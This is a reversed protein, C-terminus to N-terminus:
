RGHGAINAWVIARSWPFLGTIEFNELGERFFDHFTDANLPLVPLVVNFRAVFGMWAQLYEDRNTAARRGLAYQFLQEDNTRTWNVPGWTAPDPNYSNWVADIAPIGLGGNIMNFRNDPDLGLLAPTFDAMTVFTQDFYIGVSNAPETMLAALHAGIVNADPSAWRLVLPDSLQGDIMKHRPGDGPQWEGGDANYLWGGAELEATANALNLTYNYTILAPIRDRNERYMWSAVAILSDNTSAHGAAWMNNFEVRDLTWAIARRVHVDNTPFVDWHFFLGGSGNRPVAFYDFGGGAVLELGPPINAAGSSEVIHDIEGQMLAPIQLDNDLRRLIITDIAPQIGDFTGNFNPNRQLVINEADMDPAAALFYPGASPGMTYRFGNGAGDDISARLREYTLGGDTVFVGEGNDAVDLDPFWAHIPLPLIDIYTLEYFYPFNPQGGTEADITVSFTLDDILRVGSIVDSQMTRHDLFGKTRRIELTWWTNGLNPYPNDADDGAFSMAPAAWFLYAFAYDRATLPAGDSWLLGPQLTVTWTRSDDANVVPGVVNQVITPNIVFEADITFAVPSSHESVLLRMGANGVANTWGWIANADILNVAVTWINDLVPEVPTPDGPTPTVPPTPPAPPTPPPPPTVAEEGVGVPGDASPGCAAVISAIMLLALLLALFKNRRM